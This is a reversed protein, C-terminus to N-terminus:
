WFKWWPKPKTELDLTEWQFDSKWSPDRRLYKLFAAQVDSKSVDTRCRFHHATDGEQYEMDYPGDQEGGAQIFHDGDSLIIFEGRGKDDQFARLLEAESINKHSINQATDLNM